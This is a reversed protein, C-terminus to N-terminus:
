IAQGHALCWRVSRAMGERLALHPEYGLEQRARDVTCAITAGMEGLVHIKQQYLGASQLWADVTRAAAGIFAPLRLRGHTCPIGFEEELVVEVTDVIENVTYPQADAIWYVRGNAAPTQAALLLGQCINDVYAMSRQQLGDGLIPFRGQKIMTFFLTQRAPQNPGYFWPPRVIVAEVDGRAQAAQILAELKAKSRGYGLYPNPPADEDFRHAPYPNLGLPSNSSVAVIRRVGADRAAALLHETGQVNIRDFDRVWRQPHILGAAHFLTTGEAERCFAALSAPDLLDGSVVEVRPGLALLPAPDTGDQVLCRVRRSPDPTAFRPDDSLGQVLTEVFRGGLWGPAGTVLLPPAGAPRPGGADRARRARTRDALRESNRMAIAMTPGQPNVGPSDPLVSADHVHLNTFGHVRGTSDVVCRDPNEGLPCTSFAHVVTLSMASAPLDLRALGRAQDVDRITPQGVLSPYVARAGAAFLCEALLSLGRLLNQRDAASLAYRVLAGDALGPLARVTGHGTARSQAYYLAMNRWQDMVPERLRWTDSLLMALFGPTFVSGGLTLAPWFETVQYVPMASTHADVVEDFVAAAKIMPHIALHDGVHRRIGSRRLLVPTQIPGCALVIVDARIELPSPRGDVTRVADVGTVRGNEHRLRRARCGALLTAGADRARPLFTRQMSQKAGAAHARTDDSRHCRPVEMYRWGCGEIGRRFLASSAPIRDPPLTSVSLERELRDFYPELDREDLDRVAADSKWRTYCESPLRHFFASNIETSGGVCCGEVFAIAPNGLIPTLGANRYIQTMAQPTHTEMASTDVDPGEELITVAFGQEALTAATVAGGAGSGIVLVQTRLRDSVTTASPRTV